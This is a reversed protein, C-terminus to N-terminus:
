NLVEAEEKRLALPHFIFLFVRYKGGRLATKAAYIQLHNDNEEKELKNFIHNLLSM